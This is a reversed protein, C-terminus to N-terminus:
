TGTGLYRNASGAVEATLSEWECPKPGPPGSSSTNTHIIDDSSFPLKPFPQFTMGQISTSAVRSWSGGRGSSSNRKRARSPRTLYIKDTKCTDRTGAAFVVHCGHHRDVLRTMGEVSNGQKNAHYQSIDSEESSGSSVPFTNGLVSAVFQASSLSSSGRSFM